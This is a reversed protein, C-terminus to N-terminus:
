TGLHAWYGTSLAAVLSRSADGQTYAAAAHHERNMGFVLDYRML